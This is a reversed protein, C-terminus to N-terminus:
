SICGLVRSLVAAAAAAREVAGDVTLGAVGFLGALARPWASSPRRRKTTLHSM